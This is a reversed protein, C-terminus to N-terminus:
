VYWNMKSVTSFYSSRRLIERFIREYGKASQKSNLHKQLWFMCLYEFLGALPVLPHLCFFLYWSSLLLDPRAVTSLIEVTEQITLALSKKNLYLPLFISITSKCFAEKLPPTATPAM